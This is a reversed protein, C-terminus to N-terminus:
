RSLGCTPSTTYSIHRIESPAMVSLYTVGLMADHWAKCTADASNNDFYDAQSAFCQILIERPCAQWDSEAM